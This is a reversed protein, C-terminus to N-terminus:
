DDVRIYGRAGLNIFTVTASLNIQAAHSLMRLDYHQSLASQGCVTLEVGADRLKSLLARNPNNAVGTRQLYTADDVLQVITPGHFVATLHMHSAPVGYQHFTNILGAVFEVDSGVESPSDGLTKMDFVLKYDLNPDPTERAGQVDHMRRIGPIPDTTQTHGASGICALTLVAALRVAAKL